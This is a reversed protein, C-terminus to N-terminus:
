PKKKAGEDPSTVQAVLDRKVKTESISASHGTKDVASAGGESSTSKTISAGHGAGSAGGQLHKGLKFGFQWTGGERGVFLAIVVAVFFGIGVVILVTTM